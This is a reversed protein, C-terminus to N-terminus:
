RASRSPRGLSTPPRVREFIEVPPDVVPYDIVSPRHVWPFLPPTEIRAVLRYGLSGDRLRDYLAPPCTSGYPLGPQMSHDTLVLVFETASEDVGRAMEDIEAASYHVGPYTGLFPVIRVYELDSRVRPLKQDPGFFGVRDGPRGQANLWNAAAYRSDQLMAYTLDAGRLLGLVAIAAVTLMCVLRIVTHRSRLGLGLPLSALCALVFSVPLLFRMQVYRIPLVFAVILSIAPILLALSLRDRWAALIVGALAAAFMLGGMSSALCDWIERGVALFGALTAPLNPLVTSGPGVGAVYYVHAVFREPSLILGSSVVYVLAGAIMTAAPAM